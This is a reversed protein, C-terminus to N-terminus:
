GLNTSDAPGLLRDLTSQNVVARASRKVLVMSLTWIPGDPDRYVRLELNHSTEEIPM